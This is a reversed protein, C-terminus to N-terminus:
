SKNHRGEGQRIWAESLGAIFYFPLVIGWLGGIAFRLWPPTMWLLLFNGLTDFVIPATVLVFLSTKPVWVSSFRNTLPFFILGLIVGTYIGFCRSCVALPYGWLHFCREPNQHCLPSFIGYLVAGWGNGQSKMWPALVIAAIWFISGLSAATYVTLIKQKRTM